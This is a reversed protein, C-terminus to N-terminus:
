RLAAGAGTGPVRGGPEKVGAIGGCIVSAHPADKRAARLARPRDFVPKERESEDEELGGQRSELENDDVAGVMMRDGRARLARLASVIM